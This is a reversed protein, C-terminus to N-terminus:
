SYLLTCSNVIKEQIDWMQQSKHLTKDEYGHLHLLGHVIYRALETELTQHHLQSNELAVGVGIFIEGHNFTIVDTPGEIQMFERHLQDSKKDSILYIAISDLETAEPSLLASAGPGPPAQLCQKLAANAFARLKKLQTVSFPIQRQRSIVRVSLSTSM